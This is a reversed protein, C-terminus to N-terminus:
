PLLALCGDRCTSIGNIWVLASLGGCAGDLGVGGSPSGDQDFLFIAAVRLRVGASLSDHGVGFRHDFEAIWEVGRGWKPLWPKM